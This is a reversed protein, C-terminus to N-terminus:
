CPETGTDRLQWSQRAAALDAPTDCDLWSMLGAANGAAQVSVPQLPALLGHLSSGAYDRLASRLAGAQWAGALWQPRAGADALVAGPRGAAMARGLLEGLQRDRLFPLDAALLTLWPAAVEALGCRLAAVPGCGPPEERAFRLEAPGSAAAAQLADLVFGPRRPGVIILRSSGATAAARAVSVVMPEAGVILAPKDAGGMRAARGGALIVTDFEPTDM